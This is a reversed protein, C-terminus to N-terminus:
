ISDTLDNGTVNNVIKNQGAIWIAAITKGPEHAALGGQVTDARREVILDILAIQDGWASFLSLRQKKRAKSWRLTILLPFPLRAPPCAPLWSWRNATDLETATNIYFILWDPTTWTLRRVIFPHAIRVCDGCHPWFPRITPSQRLNVVATMLFTMMIFKSGRNCNTLPCTLSVDCESTTETEHYKLKLEASRSLGCISPESRKILKFTDGTIWYGLKSNM